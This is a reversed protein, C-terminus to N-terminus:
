RHKEARPATSARITPTHPLTLSAPVGGNGERVRRLLGLPAFLQRFPAPRRGAVTLASHGGDRGGGSAWPDPDGTVTYAARVAPVIEELLFRAYSDDFADYEANRYASPEVFVVVTVPMEGRHILNDLVIPARVEFDLDMYWEADQFVMLSAPDSEAYQAPVYVWFRRTTGAFVRSDNWEYEHLAGRPVPLIPFCVIGAATLVRFM